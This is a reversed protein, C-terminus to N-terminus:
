FVQHVSHIQYVALRPLLTKRELSDLLSGGIALIM